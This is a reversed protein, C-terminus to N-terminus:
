QSENINRFSAKLYRRQWGFVWRTKHACMEEVWTVADNLLARHGDCLPMTETVRNRPDMRQAETLNDRRWCMGCQIETTV